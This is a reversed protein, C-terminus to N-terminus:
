DMNGWKYTINLHPYKNELFERVEKQIRELGISGQAYSSLVRKGNIYLGNGLVCSGQDGTENAIKTYINHITEIDENSIGLIRLNFDDICSDYYNENLSERVLKNKLSM